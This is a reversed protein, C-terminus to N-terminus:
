LQALPKLPHLRSGVTQSLGALGDVVGQAELVGMMEETGVLGAVGFGM